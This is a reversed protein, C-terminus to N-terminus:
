MENCPYMVSCQIVASTYYLYHECSLRTTAFENCTVIVDLASRSLRLWQGLVVLWLPFMIILHSTGSSLMHFRPLHWRPLHWHSVAMWHCPRVCSSQGKFQPLHWRPLQWRPLWWRDISAGTFSDLLVLLCAITFHGIGIYIYIYSAVVSGRIGPFGHAMKNM